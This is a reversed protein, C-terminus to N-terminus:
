SHGLLLCFLHSLSLSHSHTYWIVVYNSVFIFYLLVPFEVLIYGVANPADLLANSLLLAIFVVRGLMSFLSDPRLILSDISLWDTILM